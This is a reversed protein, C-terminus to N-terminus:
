RFNYVINFIKSKFDLATCQQFYKKTLPRSARANYGLLECCGLNRSYRKKLSFYSPIDTFIMAFDHFYVTLFTLSLHEEVKREYM